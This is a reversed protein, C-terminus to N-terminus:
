SVASPLDPPANQHSRVSPLLGGASANELVPCSCMQEHMSANMVGEGTPGDVIAIRALRWTKATCMEQAFEGIGILIPASPGLVHM